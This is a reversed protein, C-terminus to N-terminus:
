PQVWKQVPLSQECLHDVFVGLREQRLYASETQEWKILGEDIMWMLVDKGAPSNFHEEGLDRVAEARTWFMLCWQLQMPTM